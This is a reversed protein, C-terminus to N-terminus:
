ADPPEEDGPAHDLQKSMLYHPGISPIDFKDGEATFGAHEYFSQAATRANCWLRAGGHERTHAECHALLAAGIGRGRVEPRSAMGRVRWDDPRPDRPHSDRMVSGVGLVRGGEVIAVHLTEPADDAPFVLQDAPQGPRLVQGRLPRVIRADVAMTRM